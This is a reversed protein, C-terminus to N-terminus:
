REVMRTEAYKFVVEYRQGCGYCELEDLMATGDVSDIIELYEFKDSGCNPCTRIGKQARKDNM